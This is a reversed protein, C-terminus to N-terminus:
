PVLGNIPHAHGLAATAAAGGYAYVKATNTVLWYGRGNATVGMGVISSLHVHSAFPSGFFTAGARNYVNGYATYLWYGGNPDAVIGNIPHSPALAPLPAADGYAYVNGASSVLWYGRGDATAGMGVISSLQDHSAFPSGFFPVGASNYVNGYATYLWYGGNPDAVIGKIPHSHGLARLSAADGYPFVKAASDVLWYGHGDVTSAMGIISSVGADSAFPSGYFRAGPSEYVNGYGTYLWFSGGHVPGTPASTAPKGVGDANRATEQVRFTYGLYSAPITYSPGTAGPIAVCDSGTSNCDEWQYAYSTPSSSWNAHGEVLTQGVSPDDPSITPGTSATPTDAAGVANGTGATAGDLYDGDINITVGGYTANVGGSYQHLRQHDSWDGSPIYSSSTTEEGNWDAFWIDDPEAYGTGYQDVLDSVGSAASSYVGSVYGDAHLQATWAGLFALVASTTSGGPSYAEMDFYLPSGTGIGVAEAQNVADSAAATGEAAAQSPNISACGCSNGPAQLGVYIPILHWGAAVETAAWGATLNPQSCAENTGGVYIGVARYPSSGWAAMQSASPTACPDFGLGTYVPDTLARALHARAERALSDAAASSAGSTAGFASPAPTPPLSRRGLAREVTAPDQRWTATVTVGHAPISLQGWDSQGAAAPRNVGKTLPAGAASGGGAGTSPEVLIAETRGVSHAPCDQESGPRGLYVAHRNFRVCVTPDSALNYVPWGRPVVVSYGDYRVVNAGTPGSASATGTGAAAWSLALVGVLLGCRHVLRLCVSRASWPTSPSM